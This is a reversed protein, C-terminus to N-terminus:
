KKWLGFHVTGSHVNGNLLLARFLQKVNPVRFRAAALVLVSELSNGVFKFHVHLKGEV